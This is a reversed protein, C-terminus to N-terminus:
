RANQDTNEWKWGAGEPTLGPRSCWISNMDDTASYYFGYYDMDTFGSCGCKYDISGHSADISVIGKIGASRSFDGEAIDALLIEQNEEVTAFIEDKSLHDDGQTLSSFACGLSVTWCLASAMYYVVASCLGLLALTIIVYRWKIAKM